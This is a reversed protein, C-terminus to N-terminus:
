RGSGRETLINVYSFCRALSEFQGLEQRKSCRVTPCLFRGCSREQMGETEQMM